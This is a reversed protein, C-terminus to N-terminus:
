WRAEIKRGPFQHVRELNSAETCTRLMIRPNMGNEKQIIQTSKLTGHNTTFRSWHTHLVPKTRRSTLQMCKKGRRASTACQRRETGTCFDSNHEDNGRSYSSPRFWEDLKLVIENPKAGLFILLRFQIQEGDIKRASKRYQELYDNWRTTFKLKPKNMAQKRIRLVSDPFVHVEVDHM